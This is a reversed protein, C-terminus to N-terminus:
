KGGGFLAKAAWFSRINELKFTPYTTHETKTFFKALGFTPGIANTHCKHPM